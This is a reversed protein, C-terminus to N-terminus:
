NAYPIPFDRRGREKLSPGGFIGPANRTDAIRCPTVPTFRLGRPAVTGQQTITYTFGAIVLRGVRPNSSTNPWVTFQVIGTGLQRDPTQVTVWPESTEVTWPCMAGNSSVTASSLGGQSGVVTSLQTLRLECPYSGLQSITVRQQGPTLSCNTSTVPVDAFRPTGPNPLAEIILTGAGGVGTTTSVKL